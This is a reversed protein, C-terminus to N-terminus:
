YEILYLIIPAKDGMYPLSRVVNFDIFDVADEPTMSNNLVLYDIMKIYSYIVRGDESIGIIASSYCPDEFLISDEYGKECLWEKVKRNDDCDDGIHEAIALLSSPSVFLSKSLREIVDLSINRKGNELDSMYRRDINSDYSFQEQSLGFRKRLQIIAKGLKERLNM